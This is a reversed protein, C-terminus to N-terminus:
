YPRCYPRPQFNSENQSLTNRGIIPLISIIDLDNLCGNDMYKGQFDNSYIFGSFMDIKPVSKAGQRMGLL